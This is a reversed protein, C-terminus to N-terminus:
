FEEAGLRQEIDLSQALGLGVLVPLVSGKREFARSLRNAGPTRAGRGFAGLPEGAIGQSLEAGCAQALDLGRDALGLAIDVAQEAVASAAPRLYVVALRQLRVNLQGISCPGRAPMGERAKM